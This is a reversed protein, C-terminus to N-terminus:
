LPFFTWLLFNHNLRVPTNDFAFMNKLERILSSPLNRATVFSIVNNGVQVAQCCLGMCFAHFSEREM